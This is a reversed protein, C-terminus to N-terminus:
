GQGSGHWVQEYTREALEKALDLSMFYLAGHHIRNPWGRKFLPRGWFMRMRPLPQITM